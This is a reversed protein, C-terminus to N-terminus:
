LGAQGALRPTVGIGLSAKSFDFRGNRSLCPLRGLPGRIFFTTDLDVFQFCGFAAAFQAAAAISLASELMAGIMLKLGAAHALRAAHAADLIGLKAFKINVANVARSRIALAVDAVSRVSEDACVLTGSERTLRALGDWDTRPVPQEILAPRVGSKKLRSLLTLMRTATYGQNGDLILSANPASRAVALTREFDQTEDAGIKIKFTRFGRQYFKRTMTAAARTSGIVITIDTACPGPQDGFFRWFPFGVARALADLVAMELAALGAPNGHFLPRQAAILSSYDGVGAGRIARAAQRLNALTSGV